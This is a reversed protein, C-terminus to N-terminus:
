KRLLRASSFLRKDVRPFLNLCKSSKLIICINEIQRRFSSVPSRFDKPMVGFARSLRFVSFKSFLQAVQRDINRLFEKSRLEISFAHSSGKKM